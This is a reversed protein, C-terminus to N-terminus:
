MVEPFQVMSVLICWMDNVLDNSTENCLLDCDDFIKTALCLMAYYNGLLMHLMYSLIEDKITLYEQYLLHRNELNITHRLCM